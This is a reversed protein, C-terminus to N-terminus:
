VAISLAVVPADADHADLVSGWPSGLKLGCLRFLSTRSGTIWQEIQARAREALEALRDRMRFDADLYRSLYGPKARV